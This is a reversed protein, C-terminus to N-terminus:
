SRFTADPQNHFGASLPWIAARGAPAAEVSEGTSPPSPVPPPPGEYLFLDVPVIASIGDATIVRVHVTAAAQAPSVATISGDGNVTFSPAAVGGFAVATAGTFGSGSITVSTGGSTPGASPNLSSVSPQPALYAFHDTAVAASTGGPGTVTVDVTSASQAPAVATLSSPSNVVFGTAALTGFNVATAGTFHTGTVTVATGGGTPGSEPRVSTVSPPALYTFHDASVVPSTGLPTTVRVDVTGLAQAPSVATVSTDSNVVFSVAAVSGFHVATAATFGSGTITVSTGGM